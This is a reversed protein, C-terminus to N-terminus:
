SDRKDSPGPLQQRFDDLGDVQLALVDVDRVDDLTPRRLVAIWLRVFHLRALWKEELLDVDDLRFDDDREALEARLRQQSCQIRIRAEAATYEVIAPRLEDRREM